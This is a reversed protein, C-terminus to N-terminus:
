QQAEMCKDHREIQRAWVGACVRNGPTSCDFGGSYRYLLLAACAKAYDGALLQRRMSSKNWAGTGYQYVWDMYLDYEAQHLAVGPLSERFANEDRSIHAAALVIARPPTIRDGLQVRKGDEYVTSGLGLTPVDNKTPIIAEDTYGEKVAIGVFAAMSLSLGAVLVRNLM